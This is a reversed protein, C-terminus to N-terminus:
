DRGSKSFGFKKSNSCSVKTWSIGKSSASPVHTALDVTRMTMVLSPDQNELQVGPVLGGHVVVVEGMDKVNGVKLIVPCAELWEAQEDTLQRALSREKSNDEELVEEDETDPTANGTTREKLGAKTHEAAKLERRTLLVRDENNGRVCSAEHKRALDVVESSKPGKAILDGTFILHDGKNIDFSVKELLREM